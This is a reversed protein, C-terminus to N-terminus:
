TNERNPAEDVLVSPLPDFEVSKLRHEFAQREGWPVNLLHNSLCIAALKELQWKPLEEDTALVLEVTVTYHRKPIPDILVELTLPEKM